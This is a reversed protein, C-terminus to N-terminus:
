ASRLGLGLFSGRGGGRGTRAAAAPRGQPSGEAPLERRPHQHDDLSAAAPGPDGHRHDLRRFDIGLRRLEQELDPYHERTRVAREGVSLFDDSGSRGATASFRFRVARLKECLPFPGVATAGASVSDKTSGGRLEAVRRSLGRLEAREEVSTGTLEGAKSGGGETGADGTGDAIARDPHEDGVETPWASM